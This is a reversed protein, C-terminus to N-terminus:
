IQEALLQYRDMAVVARRSLVQEDREAPLSFPLLIQGCSWGAIFPREGLIRVRVQDAMWDCMGRDPAVFTLQWRFTGGTFQGAVNGSEPTGRDPWFVVYREPVQDAETNEDPAGSDFVTVAPIPDRVLSLIADPVSM